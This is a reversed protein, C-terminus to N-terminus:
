TGHSTSPFNRVVVASTCTHMYNFKIDKTVLINVLKLYSILIVSFMYEQWKSIFKTILIPKVNTM